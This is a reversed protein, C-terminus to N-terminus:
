DIIVLCGELTDIKINQGTRLQEFQDKDMAVIPIERHYFHKSVIPGTALIPETKINIIAKPEKGIRVLELMILSGTSSGKGFPFALIKGSITQGFLEHRPDCITGTGPDVGGWFSISQSTKIVQGRCRGPVITRAKLVTAM